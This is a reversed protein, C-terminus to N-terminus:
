NKEYRPVVFAPNMHGKSLISTDNLMVYLKYADSLWRGFRKIDEDPVGAAAYASAGGRRLSHSAFKNPNCGCKIAVAKLLESIQTRSIFQGKGELQCVPRKAQRSIGKAKLVAHLLKIAKVPCTPSKDNQELTRTAVIKDNKYSVIKVTMVMGEQFEEDECEEEEYGLSRRMTIDGWTIVREPDIEEIDSKLVEVSRLMIWFMLCICAALAAGGISSQDIMACTLEVLQPTAPIKPDPPPDKSSLDRLFVQAAELDHLPNRQFNKVFYWAVGSLKRKISRALLKFTVREYAIYSIVKRCKEAYNDEKLLPDWNRALFYQKWHEQDSLYNKATNKRKGATRVEEAFADIHQIDVESLQPPKRKRCTLKKDITKNTEMSVVAERPKTAWREREMEGARQKGKAKLPNDGESNIKSKWKEFATYDEGKDIKFFMVLMEIVAEDFFSQAPMNGVMRWADEGNTGLFDNWKKSDFGRMGIARAVEKATLRRFSPEWQEEYGPRQSPCSNQIWPGRGSSTCSPLLGLRPCFANNPFSAQNSKLPSHINGVKATGEKVEFRFVFDVQDAIPMQSYAITEKGELDLVSTCCTLRAHKEQGFSGEPKQAFVAKLYGRVLTSQKVSLSQFGSIRSVLKEVNVTTVLIHYNGLKAKIVDVVSSAEGYSKCIGPACEVLFGLPQITSIVKIVNELNPAFLVDGMGKAGANAKSFPICPLSFTCIGVAGAVQRMSKTAEQMSSRVEALPFHDRLHEQAVKDHDVFSLPSENTLDRFAKGFGGQGSFFDRLGISTEIRVPVGAISALREAEWKISGPLPAIYDPDYFPNVRELIKRDQQFKKNLEAVIAEHLNNAANHGREKLWKSEGRAEAQRRLTTLTNIPLSTLLQREQSPGEILPFDQVFDPIPDPPIDKLAREFQTRIMEVPVKCYLSLEKSFKEELHDLVKLAIKYWAKSSADAGVVWHMNRLWSPLEVKRPKTGTREEFERLYNEADTDFKVRTFYDAVNSKSTVRDGYGRIQLMLEIIAIIAGVQEDKASKIRGDLQLYEAAVNDLFQRIICGPHNGWFMVASWLCPLNELHNITVQDAKDRTDWSNFVKLEEETLNELIYEGTALNQIFITKGSADSVMSIHQKETENGPFTLRQQLPLCGEFSTSLLAGDNISALGFFLRLNFRLQEWALDENAEDRLCPAAVMGQPLKDLGPNAKTANSIIAYLRPLVVKKFSPVAFSIVAQLVGSLKQVTGVNLHKEERDLFKQCLDYAKKVKAGPAWVQRRQFDIGCGFAYKYNEAEGERGQKELNVADEGLMARLLRLISARHEEYRSGSMAVSYFIDDVFRRSRPHNDGSFKPNVKPTMSLGKIILDGMVEFLGPSSKSGFVIELNVLVLKAGKLHSAFCGILGLPQPIRPFADAIDVKGGRLHAEKHERQEGLAALVVGASSTTKQHSQAQSDIGSNAAHTHGLDTSDNCIRFKGTLTGAATKKAAVVINGMRVGAAILRELITPDSYDFMIAKKAFLLRAFEKLAVGEEETSLDKSAKAIYGKVPGMFLADGGEEVLSRLLELHEGSVKGKFEGYISAWDPGANLRKRFWVKRLGDVISLLAMRLQTNTPESDKSLREVEFYYWENMFRGLQQSIRLREEESFEEPSVLLQIFKSDYYSAWQETEDFMCGRKSEIWDDLNAKLTERRLDESVECPPRGGLLTTCGIFKKDAELETDEFPILFNEQGSKENKLTTAAAAKQTELVSLFKDYRKGIEERSYQQLNRPGREKAKTEVSVVSKVWRCDDCKGCKSFEMSDCGRVWLKGCAICDLVEEILICDSNKTLEVEAGKVKVSDEAVTGMRKVQDRNPKSPKKKQVVGVEEHLSIKSGALCDVLVNPTNLLSVTEEVLSTHQMKQVQKAKHKSLRLDDLNSLAGQFVKEHLQQVSIYASRISDETFLSTEMETELHKTM